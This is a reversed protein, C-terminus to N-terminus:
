SLIMQQAICHTVSAFPFKVVSTGGSLDSM